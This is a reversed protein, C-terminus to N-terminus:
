RSNWVGIGMTSGDDVFETCGPYLQKIESWLRPVEVPNNHVKEVQGEGVIDHFAVINSLPGYNVWDQKAGDYRHDGDILIADYPALADVKDMIEPDTSDGLIVHIKYGRRRLDKAAAILSNVSSKKGWMGGPLDVAVGTSGKPLNIMIEHFTDAHRAGIELYSKVAHDNLYTIFSRLEIENQSARRGSFTKLM